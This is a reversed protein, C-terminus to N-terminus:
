FFRRLRAQRSDVQASPKVPLELEAVKSLNLHFIGPEPQLLYELRWLVKFWNDITRQDFGRCRIISKEIDDKTYYGLQRNTNILNELIERICKQRNM